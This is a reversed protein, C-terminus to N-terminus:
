NQHKKIYRRSILSELNKALDMRMAIAISIPNGFKVSDPALKM